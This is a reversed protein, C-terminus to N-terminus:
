RAGGALLFSALLVSLVIGSIAVYRRDGEKLLAPITAGVGVVPTILLVAVGLASMALPDRRIALGRLIEALSVFVGPAPNARDPRVSRQLELAPGEFGMRDAYLILGLVMLGAGILGGWFLIRAIM